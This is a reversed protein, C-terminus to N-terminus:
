IVTYFKQTGAYAMVYELGIFMISRSIQLLSQKNEKDNSLFIQNKQMTQKNTKMFFTICIFKM